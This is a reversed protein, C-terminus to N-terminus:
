TRSDAFPFVDVKEDVGEKFGEWASKMKDFFGPENTSKNEDALVTGFSLVGALAITWGVYKPLAHSSSVLRSWPFAEVRPRENHILALSTTVPRFHQWSQM